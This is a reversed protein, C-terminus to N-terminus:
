FPNADALHTLHLRALLEDARAAAAAPDLGARMPGLTLEDAVRGTLFQHEPDQFVSGIRAVLRRAPWRSIRSHAQGPELASTAVVSGSSPELLGGLLLALTSKGSGNSGMVALADASCLSVDTHDLAGPRRRFAGTPFGCAVLRSSRPTCPSSRTHRVM